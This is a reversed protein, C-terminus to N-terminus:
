LRCGIGLAKLCSELQEAEFPKTLYSAAGADLARQRIIQNPYATMAIVPLRPVREALIQILEIGGIGPMQLDALVCSLARLGAYSLLAQAGEFIAADYGISRVLRGLATRIFADDDVIGVTLLARPEAV